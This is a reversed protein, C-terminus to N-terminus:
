ERKNGRWLLGGNELVESAYRESIGKVKLYWGFFGTVIIGIALFYLSFSPRFLVDHIVATFMFGPFIANMTWFYRILSKEQENAESWPKRRSIEYFLYLSIVIGGLVGSLRHGTVYQFISGLFIFLNPLIVSWHNELKSM